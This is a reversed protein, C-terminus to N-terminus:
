RKAQFEPLLRGEGDFYDPKISATGHGVPTNVNPLMKPHRPIGRLIIEEVAAGVDIFLKMSHYRLWPSLPKAFSVISYVPISQTWAYHLEMATGWSPQLCSALIMSCQSIDSLDSEVIERENGLELGRYDRVMPDLVAFGAGELRAKATARWWTADHDNLGFIGGALYIKKM